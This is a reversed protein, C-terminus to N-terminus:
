HLEVAELLEGATHEVLDLARDDALAVRELNRQEPEERVPM